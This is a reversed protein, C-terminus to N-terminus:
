RERRLWADDEIVNMKKRAQVPPAGTDHKYGCGYCQCRKKGKYSDIFIYFNKGAGCFPCTGGYIGTSGQIHVLGLSEAFQVWADRAAGREPKKINFELLVRRDPIFSPVIPTPSSLSEYAPM